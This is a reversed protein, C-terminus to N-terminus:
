GRHYTYLGDWIRDLLELAQPLPLLQLRGRADTRLLQDPGDAITALTQLAKDVDFDVTAGQGALWAEIRADLAPADLPTDTLLLQHMALLMEKGEEEEAADILAHFVGANSVLNRFFLTDTVDKLFKLKKNKYGLYQKVAFGGFLVGLSLLALLVPLFQGISEGSLGLQKVATPGFTFFLVVGAVLLLQPLAKILMPVAAGLAPLVFLLRDKLTMHIEVNPFLVELDLKPIMKYLYLYMKGPEFGLQATDQGKAAFHEASKFRILLMVRQFVAIRAGHKRWFQWFPPPPAPVDDQGRWYFLMDEFDNFDVQLDLDLLSRGAMAEALQQQNLRRYNARELVQALTEVLRLERERAIDAAPPERLLTDRDPDLHAFDAKMAELRGHYDHHLWAALLRAFARFDESQAGLSPEAALRELLEGRSFPIFAEATM